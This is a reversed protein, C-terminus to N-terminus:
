NSILLGPVSVYHADQQRNKHKSQNDAVQKGNESQRRTKWEAEITEKQEASRRQSNQGGDADDPNDQM